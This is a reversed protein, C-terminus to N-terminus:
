SEKVVDEVRKDIRLGRWTPHRLHGAATWEGFQVEGVHIPRVFHPSGVETLSSPPRFPNNATASQELLDLLERRDTTSFGTGV